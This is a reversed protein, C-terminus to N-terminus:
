ERGLNKKAFFAPWRLAPDDKVSLAFLKQAVDKDGREEMLLGLLYFMESRRHAEYPMETFHSNGGSYLAQAMPGFFRVKEDPFRLSVEKFISKAEADMGALEHLIGAKIGLEASSSVLAKSNQYETLLLEGAVAYNKEALFFPLLHFSYVYLDPDVGRADELAKRAEAMRGLCCLIFASHIKAHSFFKIEIGERQEPIHDLVKLADEFRQEARLNFAQQMRCRVHIFPDKTGTEITCRANESESIRGWEHYFQMRNIQAQSIMDDIASASLLSDLVTIADAWRRLRVLNESLTIQTMQGELTNQLELKSWAQLIQDAEIYFGRTWFDHIASQLTVRAQTQLKPDTFCGHLHERLNEMEGAKWYLELLSLRAQQAWFRNEQLSIVKDMWGQGQSYAGMRLCCMGIKYRLEMTEQDTFSGAQLYRVYFDMAKEFLGANYLMDGQRIPRIVPLFGLNRVTFERFSTGYRFGGINLYCRSSYSPPFSDRFSFVQVGDILLCLSEDKIELEIKHWENEKIYAAASLQIGTGCHVLHGTTRKGTAIIFEYYCSSRAEDMLWVSTSPWGQQSDPRTRELFSIRCNEPIPKLLAIVNMAGTGTLCADSQRWEGSLPKWHPELDKTRFSDRFVEEKREVVMPEINSIPSEGLSRVKKRYDLPTVGVKERFVTTFYSYSEFGSEFAVDTISLQTQQLFTKAKAIREMRICDVVSQNLVKRFASLLYRNSMGLNAAIQPVTIPKGISARIFAVARLVIEQQQEM